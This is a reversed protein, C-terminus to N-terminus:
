FYFVNMYVYTRNSRAKLNASFKIRAIQIQNNECSMSLIVTKCRFIGTLTKVQAKVQPTM